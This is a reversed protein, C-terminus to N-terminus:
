GKVRSVHFPFPLLHVYGASHREAVVRIPKDRDGAANTGVIHQGMPKVKARPGRITSHFCRMVMWTDQVKKEGEFFM